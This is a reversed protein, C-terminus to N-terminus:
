SEVSDVTSPPPASAMIEAIATMVRVQMELAAIYDTAEELLNLKSAKRCGPILKGLVRLRKEVAPLKKKRTAAACPPLKRKKGAVVAAVKTKRRRRNLRLSLSNELM